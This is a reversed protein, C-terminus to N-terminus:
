YLWPLGMAKDFTCDPATPRILIKLIFFHLFRNNTLSLYCKGSFILPKKKRNAHWCSPFLTDQSRARLSGCRWRSPRYFRTFTSGKRCKFVLSCSPPIYVPGAEGPDPLQTLEATAAYPVYLSQGAGWQRPALWLVMVLSKVMWIAFMFIEPRLCEM